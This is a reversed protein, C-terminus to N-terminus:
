ALEGDTVWNTVNEPHVWVFSVLLPAGTYDIIAVRLHSRLPLASAHDKLSM